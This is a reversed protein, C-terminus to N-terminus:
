LLQQKDQSRGRGDIKNCELTKNSKKICHSLKSSYLKQMNILTKYWTNQKCLLRTCSNGRIFHIFHMKFQCIQPLFHICKCLLAIILQGTLNTRIHHIKLREHIQLYLSLWQQVQKPIFFLFQTSNVIIMDSFYRKSLLSCMREKRDKLLMTWFHALWDIFSNKEASVERTKCVM